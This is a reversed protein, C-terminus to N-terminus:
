SHTPFGDTQLVEGNKLVVLADTGKRSRVLEMGKDLGAVFAATSLADALVASPAAISVSSLESPSQGTFPDFIHNLQRDSSFTTAYDGSTALCRGELKALAIYAYDRRPHQIGIRWPAGDQKEGIAGFEGTNVLAHEIGHASTGYRNFRSILHEELDDHCRLQRVYYTLSTRIRIM